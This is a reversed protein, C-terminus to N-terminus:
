VVTDGDIVQPQPTPYSIIVNVPLAVPLDERKKYGARDLISNAATLRTQPAVKKDEMIELVTQFAEPAIIQFFQKIDVIHDQYDTDGIALEIRSRAVKQLCAYSDARLNRLQDITKLKTTQIMDGEVSFVFPIKHVLEEIRGTLLFAEVEDHGKILQVFLTRQKHTMKAMIVRLDSVKNTIESATKIALSLKRGKNVDKNYLRM